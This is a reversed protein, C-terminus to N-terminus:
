NNRTFVKKQLPRVIYYFLGIASGILLFIIIINIYNKDTNGRFALMLQQAQTGLWIFLLTRPAMGIFSGSFYKKIDAKLYSLLLNMMGFPLVPSLRSFIIIKLENKRLESAIIQGKSSNMIKEMMEGKDVFIGLLYGLLCAGMYSLIVFPISAWGLFFGSATSVFTTHTLSFAMTLTACAYFVIWEFLSYSMIQTEYKIMYSIIISSSIFPLIISICLTVIATKNMKVIKLLGM